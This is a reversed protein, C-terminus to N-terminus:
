DQFSEEREGDPGQLHRDVCGHLYASEGDRVGPLFHAVEEKTEVDVVHGEFHLLQSLREDCERRVHM